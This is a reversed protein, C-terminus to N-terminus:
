EGFSEGQERDELILALEHRISHVPIHNGELYIVVSVVDLLGLVIGLLM